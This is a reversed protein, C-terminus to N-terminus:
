GEQIRTASEPETMTLMDLPSAFASPDIAWSLAQQAAYLESRREPPTPGQLASAIRDLERVVFGIKGIGTPETMENEM